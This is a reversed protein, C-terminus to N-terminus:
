LVAEPHGYCQFHLVTKHTHPDSIAGPASLLTRKALRLAEAAPHGAALQRWVEAVLAPGYNSYPPSTDIWNARTAALVCKAGHGLCALAVQNSEDRAVTDHGSDLMGAYCSSFTVIAGRMDCLDFQATSLAKPYVGPPDASDRGFLFAWEPSRDAGHLLVHIAGKRSLTQPIDPNDPAIAGDLLAPPSPFVNAIAQAIAAHVMDAPGMFEKAAEEFAEPATATTPSNRQFGLVRLFGSADPAGAFDPIRSVARIPAYEQATNGPSAGYPADTYVVPEGDLDSTPNTRTFTPLLDYGGVLCVSEGAPLAAITSRIQDSGLGSVDVLPGIATCADLIKPAWAGYKAQIAQASGILRM